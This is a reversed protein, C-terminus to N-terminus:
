GAPVFEQTVLEPALGPSQATVVLRGALFHISGLSITEAPPALATWTGTAPDYVDVLRLHQLAATDALDTAAPRGGAVYVRGDDGVALSAFQRHLRGRYPGSWDDGAPEYRWLDGSTDLVAITGDPMSAADEVDTPAAGLAEWRDGDPLSRWTQQDAFVFITGEQTGVAAAPYAAAAPIPSRAEWRNTLPDFAEVTSVATGSGITGGLVYLLGDAGAAVLADARATPMSPLDSWRDLTSDYAMSRGSRGGAATSNPDTGGMVYILGDTAVASTRHTGSWDTAERRGADWTGNLVPLGAIWAEGSRSAAAVWGDSPPAPWYPVPLVLFWDYGDSAVPGDAVYLRQPAALHQELLRSREPDVSPADRVVLDTVVVQAFAGVVVADDAPDDEAQPALWPALPPPSPSPAAPTSGTPITTGAVDSSATATAPSSSPQVSATCSAFLALLVTPSGFALWKVRSRPQQATM